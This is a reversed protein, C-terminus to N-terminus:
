LFPLASFIDYGDKKKMEPDSPTRLRRFNRSLFIIPLDGFAVNDLCEDAKDM